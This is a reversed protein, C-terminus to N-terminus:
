RHGASCWQVRFLLFALGEKNRHRAIPYHVFSFASSDQAFVCQLQDQNGSSFKVKTFAAGFALKTGKRLHARAPDRGLQCLQAPPARACLAKEPGM